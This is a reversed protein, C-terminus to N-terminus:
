VADALSKEFWASACPNDNYASRRRYGATEYMAVAETLVINTDLVITLCGLEAARRELDKLLHRGIGAGRCRPQVWMRKVEGVGGGIRHIGGCAVVDADSVGVVFVGKPSRLEPADDRAATRADFGEPLREDLEAFYATLAGLAQPSEPDRVEFRTTAARLLRDATTLAEGLLIRHRDSLPAVLDEALRQSADDLQSWAAMGDSTLRVDRRRRDEENPEVVILGESTLDALLRSLYGSDLGLRERLDGVSTGTTGIEFLLRSPALARGSGLFSSELVGIRQTFSRNFSRLNSAADTM